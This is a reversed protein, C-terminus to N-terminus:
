INILVEIEVKSEYKKKVNTGIQRNMSTINLYHRRNIVVIGSNDTDNIEEFELIIVRKKQKRNQRFTLM